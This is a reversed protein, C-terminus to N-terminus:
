TEIRGIAQTADAGLASHTTMMRLAELAGSAESGMLGLNVIALRRRWVDISDDRIFTALVMASPSGGKRLALAVSETDGLKPALEAYDPVYEPELVRGVPTFHIPRQNVELELM